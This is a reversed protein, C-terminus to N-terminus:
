SVNEVCTSPLNNHQSHVNDYLRARALVFCLSASRRACMLNAAWLAALFLSCPFYTIFKGNDSDKISHTRSLPSKKTSKIYNPDPLNSLSELAASMPRKPLPSPNRRVQECSTGRVKSM